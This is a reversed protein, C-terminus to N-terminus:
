ALLSDLRRHGCFPRASRAHNGHRLRLVKSLPDHRCVQVRVQMGPTHQASHSYHSVLDRKAVAHAVAPPMPYSRGAEYRKTGNGAPSIFDALVFRHEVIM